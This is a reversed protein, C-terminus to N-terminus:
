TNEILTHVSDRSFFMADEADDLFVLLCDSIQTLSSNLIATLIARSLNRKWSFCFPLDLTNLNKAWLVERGRQIFLQFERRFCIHKYSNHFRDVTGNLTKIYKSRALLWYKQLFKLETATKQRPVGVVTFHKHHLAHLERHQPQGKHTEPRYGTQAGGLRLAGPRLAGCRPETILRILYITKTLLRKHTDTYIMTKARGNYPTWM